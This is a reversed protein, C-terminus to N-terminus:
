PSPSGRRSPRLQPQLLRAVAASGFGVFRCFVSETPVKPIEAASSPLPRGPVSARRRENYRAGKGFTRM